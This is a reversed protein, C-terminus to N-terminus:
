QSFRFQSKEQRFAFVYSLNLNGQVLSAMFRLDSSEQYTCLNRWLIINFVAFNILNFEVCLEFGFWANFNRELLLFVTFNSLDYELKGFDLRLM